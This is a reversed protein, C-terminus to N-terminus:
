WALRPSDLVLLCCSQSAIQGCDIAGLWKGPSVQLLAVRRAESCDPGNGKRCDILDYREPHAAEADGLISDHGGSTATPFCSCDGVTKMRDRSAGCVSAIREASLDDGSAAGAQRNPLAYRPGRLHARDFCREGDVMPGSFFDREALPQVTYRRSAFGGPLYRNTEIAAGAKTAMM